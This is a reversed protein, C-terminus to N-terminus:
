HLLIQDPDIVKDLFFDYEDLLMLVVVIGDSSYCIGAKMNLEGLPSLFTFEIQSVLSHFKGTKITRVEEEVLDLESKEVYSYFSTGLLTKARIGLTKDTDGVCYIIHCYDSFHDLIFGVRPQKPPYPPITAAITHYVNGKIKTIGEPGWIYIDEHDVWIVTEAMCTSEILLDDEFDSETLKRSVCFHLDECCFFITQLLIDGKATRINNYLITGFAQLDSLCQLSTYWAAKNPFALTIKKDVLENENHGIVEGFSPSLYIFTPDKGDEGTTSVSIYSLTSM